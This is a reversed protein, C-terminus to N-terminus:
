RGISVSAPLDETTPILSAVWCYEGTLQSIMTGLRRENKYVDLTGTDFDLVMGIKFSTEESQEQGEWNFCEQHSEENWVRMVCNGRHTNFLCSDVREQQVREDIEYRKLSFMSLNNWTPNCRELSTIDRMTPRMIGCFIGIGEPERPNNIHFSISHKGNRMINQCIASGAMNSLFPAQRTYVSKNNSGEAYYLKDGVLKDFQLPLRFLKLFEQYIGIWSEDGRRPLAKKENETWKNHLITRAAVGMLSIAETRQRVERGGRKRAERSALRRSRSTTTGHKSGFRKCTLALNLMDHPSLFSALAVVTDDTFTEM